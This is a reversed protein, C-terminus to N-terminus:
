ATTAWQGQATDGGVWEEAVQLDSNKIRTSVHGDRRFMASTGRDAKAWEDELCREWAEQQEIGALHAPITVYLKDFVPNVEEEFHVM